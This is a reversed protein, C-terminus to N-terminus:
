NSADTSEEMVSESKPYPMVPARLLDQCGRDLFYLYRHKAQQPVLRVLVGNARLYRVSHTGLAHSLSRSHRPKGDGIDYLPPWGPVVRYLDM